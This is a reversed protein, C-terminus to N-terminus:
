QSQWILVGNKFHKTQGNVLRQITAKSCGVIKALAMCSLNLVQKMELIDSAEELTFAALSMGGKLRMAKYHEDTPSTWLGSAVAHRLNEKATVWELNSAANNSKVGDIHNVQLEDKFGDVFHQAVLRHVFRQVQIGNNRLTVMRYGRPHNGGIMKIEKGHKRSIVYGDSHVYYDPFGEIKKEM